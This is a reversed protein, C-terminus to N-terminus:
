RLTELYGRLDALQPGSLWTAPMKAGPKLSQPDSIWGSLNGTNNILTGGALTRRGMLHTLDPGKVGHAPTGRVTHCAGCRGVFVAQGAVTQPTAPSPAAAIQGQRWADFAARPQAVVFVAMHAHQLGCYETCQGRYIGARDAQLWSINERGPITDTKGTLAPVWFSHIVDAGILKIAVPEGVPIHIEDATAFTEGPRAGAYRAEWWWEHGTVVLTLRAPTALSDVAALAALTWILAGVLAVLTLPLGIYIWSLGGAAGGVPATPLSSAAAGSGRVLVGALVLAAIIAVVVLSLVILGWTLATVPDARPGQTWLYNMPWRALPGSVAAARPPTPRAAIPATLDPRITTGTAIPPALPALPAAGQARVAPMPVSAQM